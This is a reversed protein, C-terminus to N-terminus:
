RETSVRPRTLFGHSLRDKARFEWDTPVDIQAGGDLDSQRPQTWREKYNAADYKPNDTIKPEIFGRKLDDETAGYGAFTKVGAPTTYQERIDQEDGSGSILDAYVTLGLDRPM